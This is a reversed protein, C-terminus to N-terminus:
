NEKTKLVKSIMQGVLSDMTYAVTEECDIQCEVMLQNVVHLAEHVITQVIFVIDGIDTSPIYVFWKLQDLRVTM